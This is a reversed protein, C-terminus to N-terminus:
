PVAKVLTPCPRDPLRTDCVSQEKLYQVWRTVQVPTPQFKFSKMIAYFGDNGKIAKLWSHESIVTEPFRKCSLTWLAFPYGNDTGEAILHMDSIGSSSTCSELWRNQWNTKFQDLTMKREDLFVNVVVTETWDVVSEGNPVMQTIVANGRRNQLGINYGGPLRQLLNEGQLSPLPAGTGSPKPAITAEIERMDFATAQGIWAARIKKIQEAGAKSTDWTRYAMQLSVVGRGNSGKAYRFINFEMYKGNPPWTLFDIMAEGNRERAYLRFRADPNAKQVVKAMAQAVLAPDNGIAPLEQYRYAALKTWNDFREGERIFEILKDNNPPNGVFQKTFPEGDIVIRAAAQPVFGTFLLLLAFVTTLGKVM